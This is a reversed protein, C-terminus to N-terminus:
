EARAWSGSGDAASDHALSREPSPRKRAVTALEGWRVQNRGGAKARYLAKDAADVLDDQRTLENPWCSAVGCSVTSLRPPMGADQLAPSGAVEVLKRIREAVITAGERDTGPLLVV